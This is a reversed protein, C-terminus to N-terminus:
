WNCIIWRSSTIKAYFSILMKDTFQYLKANLPSQKHGNFANKDVHPACGQGFQDYQPQDLPKGKHKKAWYVLLVKGLEM